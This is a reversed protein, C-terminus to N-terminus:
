GYPKTKNKDNRNKAQIPNKVEHQAANANPVNPSKAPTM